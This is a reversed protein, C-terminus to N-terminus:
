GLIGPMSGPDGTVPPIKFYGQGQMAVWQQKTAATINNGQWAGPIKTSNADFGPMTKGPNDNAFQQACEFLCHGLGGDRQLWCTNCKVFVDVASPTDVRIVGKASAHQPLLPTGGQLTGWLWLGLWWHLLRLWGGREAQRRRESWHQHGLWRQLLPTRWWLLLLRRGTFCGWLLEWCWGGPGLWQTGLRRPPQGDCHEHWARQSALMREQLTSLQAQSFGVGLATSMFDEM